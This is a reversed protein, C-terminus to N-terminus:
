SNTGWSDGAKLFNITKHAHTHTKTGAHVPQAMHPTRFVVRQPISPHPPPTPSRKRVWTMKHHNLHPDLEKANVIPPQLPPLPHPDPHWTVKAEAVLALEAWSGLYSESGVRGLAVAPQPHTPPHPSCSMVARPCWCPGLCYGLEPVEVDGKTTVHAVSM